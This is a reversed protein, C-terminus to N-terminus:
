AAWMVLIAHLGQICPSHRLRITAVIAATDRSRKGVQADVCQWGLQIARNQWSRDPAKENSM